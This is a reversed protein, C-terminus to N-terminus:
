QRLEPDKTNEDHKCVQSEDHTSKPTILDVICIRLEHFDFLKFGM